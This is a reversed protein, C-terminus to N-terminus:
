KGEVTELKGTLVDDLYPAIWIISCIMDIGSTTGSLKVALISLIYKPDVPNGLQEWFRKNDDITDLYFHTNRAFGAVESITTKNSESLDEQPSTNELLEVTKKIMEDVNNIM